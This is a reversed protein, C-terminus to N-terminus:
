SVRACFKGRSVTIELNDGTAVETPSTIIAKNTDQVIAYGRFLTDGPGLLRIAQTKEAIQRSYHELAIRAIQKLSGHFKLQRARALKLTNAPSHARLSISRNSTRSRGGQINRVALEALRGHLGTHAHRILVLKRDPHVLRANLYDVTRFSDQILRAQLNRIRQELTQFRRTLVSSDPAVLEAAATPTPARHDAVFDSISFDTEHGVASLLPIPCHFIARAVREDNFAMLDEASGGGRALVLVDVESREGALGIMKVLDDPANDGQVSSPYVIIRICPYRRSLTVLMDHLVAGGTSTILGIARPFDPLSKKHAQEFLGEALLKNKLREFALRMAGEGSAEILRVVMQLEGRPQYMSLQGEVLIQSGESPFANRANQRNRFYTCRILANGEKLSFYIHGSPPTALASVEGEVWISAYRSELTNRLDLCLERVTHIKRNM